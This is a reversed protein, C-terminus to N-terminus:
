HRTPESIHILSLNPLMKAVTAGTGAGFCGQALPTGDAKAAAQYGMEATPRKGPAAYALDFLVAGGVIPVKAVGTDFGIQQEDLYRMVGDAVALGFASGGSLCVGHVQQVLNIPAFADTERTGPGGGRVDVSGVAGEKALIVTCGTRAKEDTMHAATIGQVETINGSSM